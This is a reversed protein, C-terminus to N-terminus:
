AKFKRRLTKEVRPTVFPKLNGRGRAIERVLHSSIFALEPRAPLFVTEVTRRGCLRNSLAMPMEGDLDAGARIGRVLWGAGVEGALDVVLGRFARVEVLPNGGVEAAILAVREEESFLPSKEPNVLVAVVLRDFLEAGRAILDLHGRTVPDFTGAYVAIRRERAM